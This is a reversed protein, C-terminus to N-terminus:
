IIAIFNERSQDWSVNQRSIQYIQNSIQSIKDQIESMKQRLILVRVIQKLITQKFNTKLMSITICHGLQRDM